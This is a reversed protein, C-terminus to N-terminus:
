AADGPALAWAARAAHYIDSAPDVAGAIGCVASAFAGARQLTPRLAWGCLTGLLLVSAFAD